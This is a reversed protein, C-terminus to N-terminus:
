PEVGHLRAEQEREWAPGFPALDIEIPVHEHGAECAWGRGEHTEHAPAGCPVIQVEPPDDILDNEDVPRRWEPMREVLWTCPWPKAPIPRTMSM